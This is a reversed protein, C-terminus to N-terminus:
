KRIRKRISDGSHRPVGVRILSCLSKHALYLVSYGDFEALDHDGLDALLRIFVRKGGTGAAVSGVSRRQM